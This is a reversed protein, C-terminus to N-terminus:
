ENNDEIFKKIVENKQLNEMIKQSEEETLDDVKKANKVSVKSVEKINEVSLNITAEIKGIEKTNSEINLVYSTENIITVKFTIQDEENSFKFAYEKDGTNEILIIEGDDSVFGLEYKFIKNTIQKSYISM